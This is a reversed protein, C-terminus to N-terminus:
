PGVELESALLDSSQIGYNEQSRNQLAYVYAAWLGGNMAWYQLGDQSIFYNCNFCMAIGGIDYACVLAAWIGLNGVTKDKAIRWALLTAMVIASVYAIVMPLGGDFTWGQWMIESWESPRSQDAFYNYMMGWRGAGWGLPGNPLLNNIFDRFFGGRNGNYVSVPDAEILSGVRTTVTAGGFGVAWFFSVVSLVAVIAMSGLMKGFDARRGLLMFFVFTIVGTMVLISRIQSLYLCFLGLCISVLALFKLIKNREAVLIVIGFLTAYMGSGAAGGPTDTLGMPRFIREGNALTIHLQELYAAHQELFSSMQPQFRGPYKVQLYGFLSSLSQYFWLIMLFTRFAHPSITLRPVWFIPGLIALYLMFQAFASMFSNTDPHFFELVMIVFVCVAANRSPHKLSAGRIIFLFLLSVSFAAVRLPLRISGTGPTLQIVSCAIQGFLFANLWVATPGNMAPGQLEVQPPYNRDDPIASFATM